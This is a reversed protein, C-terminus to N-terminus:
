IGLCSFYKPAASGSCQDVRKIHTYLTLNPNHTLSKRQMTWIIHWELFMGEYQDLGTECDKLLGSILSSVTFTLHQPLPKTSEYARVCVFMRVCVSNGEIVRAKVDPQQHHTTKLLPINETQNEATNNPCSTRKM